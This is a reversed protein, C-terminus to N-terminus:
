SQAPKAYLWKKKLQIDKTVLQFLELNNHFIDFHNGSLFYSNENNKVRVFLM